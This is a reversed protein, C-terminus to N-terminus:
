IIFICQFTCIYIIWKFGYVIFINMFLIIYIIGEFEEGDKVRIFKILENRGKIYNERDLDEERKYEHQKEDYEVVLNFKPFYFDVRYNNFYYETEYYIADQYTLFEDEGNFPCYEWDLETKNIHVNIAYKLMMEFETQKPTRKIKYGINLRNLLVKANLKRSNSLVQILGKKNLFWMERNQGSHFITRKLKEDQDVNNLMKNISPSDYGIWEAVDKALFLPNEFDGYVKFDKGLVVQENIINLERM